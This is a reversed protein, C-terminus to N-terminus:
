AGAIAPRLSPYLGPLPDRGRKDEPLKTWGDRWGAFIDTSLKVFAEKSIRRKEGSPTTKVTADSTYAAGYDGAAIAALYSECAAPGTRAACGHLLFLIITCFLLLLLKRKMPEAEKASAQCFFYVVDQYRSFSFCSGPM